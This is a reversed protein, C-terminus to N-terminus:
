RGRPTTSEHHHYLKNSTIALEAVKKRLERDRRQAQRIRERERRAEEERELKWFLEVAEVIGHRRAYEHLSLTDPPHSYEASNWDPMGEGFAAVTMGVLIAFLSAILLMSTPKGGPTEKCTLEKSQRTEILAKM